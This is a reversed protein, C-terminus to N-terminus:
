GDVKAWCGNMTTLILKVTMLRGNCRGKFIRYIAHVRDKERAPSTLTLLGETMYWCLLYVSDYWLKLNFLSYKLTTISVLGDGYCSFSCWQASSYFYCEFVTCCPVYVSTVHSPSMHASTTKTPPPPDVVTINYM